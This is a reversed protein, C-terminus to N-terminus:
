FDLEEPLLNNIMQLIDDISSEELLIWEKNFGTDGGCNYEQHWTAKIIKGETWVTIHNYYLGCSSTFTNNWGKCCGWGCTDVTFDYEKLFSLVTDSNIKDLFNM